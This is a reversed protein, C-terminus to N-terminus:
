GQPNPPREGLTVKIDQKGSGRVVTITVQAGPARTQLQSSLDASTAIQQGNVAVIIDNVKIGASQAPSKGSADNAFGTILVGSQAPLNYTSALQPTVDEGRIGLFGEGTNVLQGNKILQDAVYTVRNSPIAFGIGNAAGGSAPDVAGLTPIGILRGQLDVLAGGSNGPNIPASTQILGVLTRNQGESATRNLASVIGMTASQQLGLPSGIAIAFQGVQVKGSDGVSIPQLNNANIKLVALDDGPATGKLQAPYSQNNALRVAFTSFGEVVHNNTVVYGDKTLIEGSGIASGQSGQSMVEVVSPQVTRIVNIVTQQLDQASPPVAVTAAAGQPSTSTSSTNTGITCGAVTATLVFILLLAGIPYRLHHRRKAHQPESPRHSTPDDNHYIHNSM